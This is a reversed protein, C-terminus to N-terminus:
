EGARRPTLGPNEKLHLQLIRHVEALTGPLECAGHPGAVICESRAGKLHSSWYAVVGDSSNPSDGKGRDGIISHYPPQIPRADLVKFLPNSPALGTISNPMRKADGTVIALAGGMTGTITGTLDAPLAILRRGLQGLRGVAMESGRQPTCIFIVRAVQPNARFLTAREVLSGRPVSAFFRAAQDTGMANWADRDVTTVQMRSLMGGMSHGVLVCPSADRHLQYFRALEERLRLASYAPPNGTPYGFVLFQYRQRLQPDFELENIVNRWMRPTSILGHVFIVPIRRSDYPQLEYLGTINMYSSVRLAGMLGHWFESQQPYYSLPASFDADLLREAGAVRARPIKGPDLLTLTADRGKFDVVATVPATVGVKPSFPELPQTKHVGVLAAGIGDQHDKRRISKAPVAAAPTVASFGGPDWVGDRTAQAFHLRFSAPGTCLTLTRNWLRGQGSGRLLVTLGTVAQNYIRRAAPAASGSALLSSAEAASQLYLAARQEAPASSSGAQQLYAAAAGTEAQAPPRPPNVCAALAFAAGLVATALPRKM